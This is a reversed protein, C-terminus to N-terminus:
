HCGNGTLYYTTNEEKLEANLTTSIIDLIFSLPEDSFRVNIICDTLEPSIVIKKEYYYELTKIVEELRTNNFNFQFITTKEIPLFLQQTKSYVGIQSAYLEISHGERDFCKVIGETVEITILSDNSNNHVTFQTGIDEIVLNDALVQVQQHSRIDFTATGELIYEHKQSTSNYSHKLSSQPELLLISGDPLHESLPVDIAALEFTKSDSTSAFYLGFAVVVGAAAIWWRSLSFSRHISSSQWKRLANETAARDQDSLLQHARCMDHFHKLHDESADVWQMLELRQEDSIERHLHAAILADIHESTFNM